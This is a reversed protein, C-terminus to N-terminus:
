SNKLNMLFSKWLIGWSLKKIADLLELPTSAFNKCGFDVL